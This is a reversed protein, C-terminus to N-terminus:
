LLGLPSRFVESSSCNRLYRLETKRKFFAYNLPHTTQLVQDVRIRAKAEQPVQHHDQQNQDDDVGKGDKQGKGREVEVRREAVLAAAPM